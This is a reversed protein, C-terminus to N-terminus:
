PRASLGSRTGAAAASGAGAKLPPVQVGSSDEAPAPAADQVPVALDPAKRAVRWRKILRPLAFWVLAVLAIVLVSRLGGNALLGELEGGGIAILGMKPVIGIATGLMFKMFPMISIGAAMNVMVFPGLFLNRAVASAVVGHAGIWGSLRKVRAGGFREFAPAGLIRGGWFGAAASMLTGTYSLVFGQVPGFVLVAAAIMLFQPFGTLGLLLFMGICALPAWPQASVGELWARVGIEADGFFLLKAAIVGLVALAIGALGVAM